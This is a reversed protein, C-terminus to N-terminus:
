REAPRGPARRAFVPAALGIAGLILLALPWGALSSTHAKGAEVRTVELAVSFVFMVVGFGGVYGLGRSRVRSGLLILALSIAILYIDWGMHQLGSLHAVESDQARRGAGTSFIDIIPRAAGAVTGVFVGMAGAAVAAVGAATAVESAGVARRRALVRAALLLLVAGAVLLIRFTDTSPRDLIRGWVILWTVLLSLASLLAAYPARARSTGYAAIGATAVFVGAIELATPEEVTLTQLLQLLAIPALLISTVLLVARWSEARAGPGREAGVVALGYLFIAPVALDLLLPVDGWAEHGAKRAFLVVSGAALLVGGAARLLDTTDRSTSQVRSVM